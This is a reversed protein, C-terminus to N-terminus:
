KWPYIADPHYIKRRVWESYSAVLNSAMELGARMGTTYGILYPDWTDLKVGATLPGELEKRRKDIYDECNVLIAELDDQSFKRESEAGIEVKSAQADLLREQAQTDDM